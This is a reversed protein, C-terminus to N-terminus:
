NRLGDSEACTKIWRGARAAEVLDRLSIPKVDAAKHSDGMWWGQLLNIISSFPDSSVEPGFYQNIKFDALDVGFTKAFEEFFDVADDGDVGLDGFLTTELTLKQQRVGTFEAVMAFVEASLDTNM